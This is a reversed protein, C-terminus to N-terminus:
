SGNPRHLKNLKDVLVKKVLKMKDWALNFLASLRQELKHFFKSKPFYTASDEVGRTRFFFPTTEDFLAANPDKRDDVNAVIILASEHGLFKRALIITEQRLHALREAAIRVQSDIGRFGVIVRSPEDDLFRASILFAESIEPFSEVVLTLHYRLQELEAPQRDIEVSEGTPDAIEGLIEDIAERGHRLRALEWPSFEKGIEDGPNLHLWLDESALNLLMSFPMETVAVPEQSWLEVRSLDSFFPLIQKDGEQVLQPNLHNLDAPAVELNSVLASGGDPSSERLPILIRASLLALYFARREGGPSQAAALLM